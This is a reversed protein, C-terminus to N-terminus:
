VNVSCTIFFYWKLTNNRWRNTGKQAEVTGSKRVILTIQHSIGLCHNSFELEGSMKPGIKRKM